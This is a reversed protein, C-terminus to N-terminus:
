RRARTWRIRECDRAVRDGRDAQVTDRGPGCTVRDGKARDRADLRDAGAGGNLKDKGPGGVLTDNGAGGILTDNGAGGNFRDNGAGGTLRDPGATARPGSPPPAPATPAPPVPTPTAVPPEPAPPVPTPAPPEPRPPAPEVSVASSLATAWGWLFNTATVQCRVALGADAGGLTLRNGPWPGFRPQGGVSWEYEYRDPSGNWAGPQCTVVDGVRARGTISPATVNSPPPLPVTVTVSYAAREGGHNRAIVVCQLQKALDGATVLYSSGTAVEVNDRHWHFELTLPTASTWDGEDCTLTEGPARTGSIAPVAAGAVPAAPVVVAPADASARGSDSSGTVRCSIASDADVSVLRYADTDADAIPDGDRFWEYAYSSPSGAWTGPTCTLLEGFIVSGAIAPAVTNSPPPPAGAPASTATASGGLNAARVRCVIERNEDGPQPTYTAGSGAPADDVLWTYALSSPANRWGGPACTLEGGAETIAPSAASEPAYTFSTFARREQLTFGVWEFSGGLFLSPGDARLARIEGDVNLLSEVQAGDSVRHRSFLAQDGWHSQMLAGGLYVDDGALALANVAIGQTLGADFGTLAGTAEDLGVVHRRPATFSGGAFVTGDGVALANVNGGTVQPAWGPDLTGDAAVAALRTRAQGGVTTFAGGLFIRGGSVALTNVAGGTVGPNWATVNGGAVAAAGNRAEGGLTAFAGGVYVTGGAVALANVRGDADPNWAELAGTAADFAALRNRGTGGAQTFEGGALVDDGDLALARVTGNAGPDWATAEGTLMDVAALRDRTEGGLSAFSGGVLVEGGAAAVTRVLDAGMMPRRSQEGAMDDLDYTAVGDRYDYLTGPTHLAAAVYLNDDDVAVTTRSFTQPALLRQGTTGDLAHLSAFNGAAEVAAGALYLTDNGAAYVLQPVSDSAVPAWGAIRSGAALSFAALKSTFSGSVYLRTGSAALASVSSDDLGPDFSTLAGTALDFAALGARASGAIREFDGGVYLRDGAAVLANVSGQPAPSWAFRSGDARDFAALGDSSAVYVRGGAAVIRRVEGELQPAFGPDVTGDARVHALNTRAEGGISTFYGGVYWGGAGDDVVANVFGNDLRPFESGDLLAVPGNRPGLYKFDGGLYLTDGSRALAHVDGDVTWPYADPTRPLSAGQAPAALVLAILLLVLVGRHDAGARRDITDGM